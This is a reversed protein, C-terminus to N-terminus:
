RSFLEALKRGDILLLLLDELEDAPLQSLDLWRPPNGFRSQITRLFLNRRGAHTAARSGEERGEELGEKSGQAFGQRNAPGIVDHDMIDDLIPM